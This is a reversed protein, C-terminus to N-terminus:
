MSKNKYARCFMGGTLWKKGWRTVHWAGMYESCVDLTATFKGTSYSGQFLSTTFPEEIVFAVNYLHIPDEIYFYNKGSSPDAVTSLNKDYAAKDLANKATCDKNLDLVYDNKQKTTKSVNNGVVVKAQINEEQIYNTKFEKEYRNWNEGRDLSYYVEGRAERNEISITVEQGNTPIPARCNVFGRIDIVRPYDLPIPELGEGSLHIIPAKIAETHTKVIFPDALLYGFSGLM